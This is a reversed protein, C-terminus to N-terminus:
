SFPLSCAVVAIRAGDRLPCMVRHWHCDHRSHVREHESHIVVKEAVCQRYLREFLRGVESDFDSVLRGTMDFGTYRFLGPGYRRYQFEDIDARYDVIVIYDLWRQLRDIAFFRPEVFDGPPKVSLCYKTFEWALPRTLRTVKDYEPYAVVVDGLGCFSNMAAKLKSSAGCDYPSRSRHAVGKSASQGGTKPMKRGPTAAAADKSSRPEDRASIHLPTVAKARPPSNLKRQGMPPYYGVM